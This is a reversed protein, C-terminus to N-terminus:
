SKSKRKAMLLNKFDALPILTSRTKKLAGGKEEIPLCFQSTKWRIYQIVGSM